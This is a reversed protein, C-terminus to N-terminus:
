KRSFNALRECVRDQWDKVTSAEFSFNNVMISFALTEGDLTTVYGSLCSVYQVHGTKARVNGEALTGKMRNKLDGDIGAISLSQYFHKFDPRHYLIELLGLLHVPQVLNIRSVGSGDIIILGTTDIQQEALFAKVVKAGEEFSGERGYRVGLTKLFHDAYLNQSPKNTKAIIESLPASEYGALMKMNQTNYQSKDLDDIDQPIGGVQIGSEKLVNQLLTVFFLTPNHITVSKKYPAADVAISGTIEIQNTDIRRISRINTESGPPSTTANVIWEGYVAPPITHLLVPDGVQSGPGITFNYLNNNLTFGGSEAAYWENLDEYWWSGAIYQDDFIDDDGILNGQIQKIGIAQLIQVLSRMPALPGDEHFASAFTPDGSGVIYLDGNIVGDSVDPDTSYLKTEFQFDFGLRVFAVGTSFLKMCSAPIMGKKANHSFLIEDRDLSKVIVGLYTNEFLPDSLFQDLDKQLTEVPSSTELSSPDVISDMPENSEKTKEPRRWWDNDPSEATIGLPTTLGIILYLILFILINPTKEM